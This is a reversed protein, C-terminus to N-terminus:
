RYSKQKHTPKDLHKLETNIYFQSIDSSSLFYSSEKVRVHYSQLHIPVLLGRM